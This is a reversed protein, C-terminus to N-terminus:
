NVAGSARQWAEAYLEDRSFGIDRLTREDLGEICLLQTRYHLYRKISDFLLVTFM